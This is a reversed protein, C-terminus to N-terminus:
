VRHNHYLWHSVSEFDEESGIDRSGLGVPVYEDVSWRISDYRMEISNPERVISIDGDKDVSILGLKSLTSNDSSQSLKQQGLEPIIDKVQEISQNPVALYLHTLGGSNIYRCLQQEIDGGLSFDDGKVEVGIHSYTDQNNFIDTIDKGGEFISLDVYNDKPLLGERTVSQYRKNAWEWVQHQVWSENTRSLSPTKSQNLPKAEKTIGTEAEPHLSVEIMGLRDAINSMQQNEQAAVSIKERIRSNEECCLYIRNFNETKAYRNIQNLVAKIDTTSVGAQSWLGYITKVEFGVYTGKKEGVLDIQGNGTDVEGAVRYGSASLWSWLREQLVEETGTPM